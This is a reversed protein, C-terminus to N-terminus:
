DSKKSTLGLNLISNEHRIGTKSNELIFSVWIKVKINSLYSLFTRNIILIGM